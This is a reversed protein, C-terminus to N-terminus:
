DVDLENKKFEEKMEAALETQIMFYGCLKDTDTLEINNYVWRMGKTSRWWIRTM